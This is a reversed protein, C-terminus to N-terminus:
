TTLGKFLSNEDYFIITKDAYSMEKKNKQYLSKQKEWEMGIVQKIDMKQKYFNM